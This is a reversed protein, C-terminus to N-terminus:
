HGRCDVCADTSKPKFTSIAGVKRTSDAIFLTAFNAMAKMIGEVMGVTVSRTLRGLVVATLGLALRLDRLPLVLGDRWDSIVFSTMTSSAAMAEWRYCASSLEATGYSEM